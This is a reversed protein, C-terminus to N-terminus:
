HSNYQHLISHKYTIGPTLHGLILSPDASQTFNCWSMPKCLVHANPMSSIPLIREDFAPGWQQADPRSEQQQIWPKGERHWIGDSVICYRQINVCFEPLSQWLGYTCHFIITFLFSYFSMYNNAHFIGCSLIVSPPLLSPSFEIKYHDTQTLPVSFFKSNIRPRKSYNDAYKPAKFRQIGTGNSLNTPKISENRGQYM